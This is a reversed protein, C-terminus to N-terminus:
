HGTSGNKHCISHWYFDTGLYDRAPHIGGECAFIAWDVWESFLSDDFRHWGSGNSSCVAFRHPCGPHEKRSVLVAHSGMRDTCRFRCQHTRSCSTTVTLQPSKLVRADSFVNWIGEAGLSATWIFVMSLPIVVIASVYVLTVGLSLGFGPLVRKRKNAATYGKKM